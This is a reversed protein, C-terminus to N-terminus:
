RREGHAARPAPAGNDHELGAEFRPPARGPVPPPPPAPRPPPPYARWDFRRPAAAAVDQAARERRRPWQLAAAVDPAARERRWPWRLAAAVTERRRRRLGVGAGFALLAALGIPVALPIGGSDSAPRAPASSVGSSPSVTPAAQGPELPYAEWLEKPSPTSDQAWAPAAPALALGAIV